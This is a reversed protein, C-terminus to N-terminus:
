RRGGPDLQLHSLLRATILGLLTGARRANAGRPRATMAIARPKQPTRRPPEAAAFSAGPAVAVRPSRTTETPPTPRITWALADRGIAVGAGGPPVLVAEAGAVGVSAGGSATKGRVLPRTELNRTGGPSRTTARGGGGRRAWPPTAAAPTPCARFSRAVACTSNRWFRVLSGRVPTGAVGASRAAPRYATVEATSRSARRSLGGSAASTLAAHSPPLRASASRSVSRPPVGASRASFIRM